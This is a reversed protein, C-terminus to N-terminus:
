SSGRSIADLRALVSEIIWAPTSTGTTVGVRRAGALWRPDIGDASEILHAPVGLDACGRYLRMTNSSNPGGVVLLCDVERALALLADRRAETAQCITDRVTLARVREGLAAIIEEAETRSFTTQIIVGATEMPEMRRAEGSDRIVVARGRAHGVLGQVEPHERDGIIIVPISEEAFARAYRQSLQVFPCTADLIRIGRRSAEAILEPAVGHARIVLTGGAPVDDLVEVPHVGRTKLRAVELPNHIVDGLTCITGGYSELGQEILRMARMVGFCYGIHPSTVIEFTRKM